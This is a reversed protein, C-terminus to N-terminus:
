FLLLLFDYLYGLVVAGVLLCAVYYLIARRKLITAIGALVGASTGPGTILFALMAGPSVGGALLSQLLPIAANGSVYLPLGIVAALPVAFANQVGFVAAIWESPVFRNILYGIAAFGAFMPLIKKIGLDFVAQGLQDLKWRRIWSSIHATKPEQVAAACCAVPAPATACCPQGKPLSAPAATLVAQSQQQEMSPSCGCSATEKRAPTGSFRLQDNFFPTKQQLLNAVYGSGLGIVISAVTLAIAFPVGLMGSILIFGDPSMLPSSTLFAMIAAWPLATALMSLVVAMTGCACFPTFAGFAVTAPVSLFPRNMLWRKMQEADIYVRLAGATLIGFLLVVFNHRLTQLVYLVADWLISLVIQM